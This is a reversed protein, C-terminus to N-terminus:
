KNSHKGIITLFLTKALQGSGKSWKLDLPHLTFYFRVEEIPSFVQALCKHFLVWHSGLGYTALRSHM